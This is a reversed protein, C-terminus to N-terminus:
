PSLKWARSFFDSTVQHGQRLADIIPQMNGTLNVNLQFKQGDLVEPNNGLIELRLLAEGDRDLNGTLSLTEYRFNKLAQMLLDVYEGGSKMAQEATASSFRLTGPATSELRADTVTVVKGDREVPIRGSLEGDGSLGDIDLAEFLTTLDLSDILLQAETRESLPDILTDRVAIRSGALSFAADEVYVQGPTGHPLRFRVEVDELDVGVDITEATLRQGQPSGVPDLSDLDLRLDLGKVSADKSKFGLGALLLRVTGAFGNRDWTLAATGEASGRADSVAALQPSLESPQLGGTAFLLPILDVDATGRGSDLDHRASVQVLPRGGAGSTEANVVVRGGDRRAEGVVALPAFAAPTALHELAAVSFSGSMAAPDAPLELSVSVGDLALKKEPLVVTGDRLSVAAEYAGSEKLGGAISVAPAQLRIKLPAGDGTSLLLESEPLSIRTDHTLGHASEGSALTIEAETEPISVNLPAAAAIGGPLRLGAFSASGPASLSVTLRTGERGLALPLDLDARESVVEGARLKLLRAQVRADSRFADPLGEFDGAIDLKAVTWGALAVDTATVTLDPLTVRTLNPAEGLSAEVLGKLTASAPGASVDLTGDFRAGPSPSGPRWLLETPRDSDAPLSLALTGGSLRALDAALDPGLGLAGFDATSLDTATIRTTGRPALSLEEEAWAGTLDTVTSFTAAQGPLSLADLDATIDGTLDGQKLWALLSDRNGQLDPLAPWRGKAEVAIRGKGGTPFAAPFLSPGLSWLPAAETVEANLGFTGKPQGALDTLKADLTLDLSGDDSGLRATLDAAEHNLDFRFGAEHFPTGALSLGGLTLDGRGQRPLGSDLTLALDGKIANVRLEGGPLAVTGGSLALRAETEAEPDGSATLRGSLEGFGSTMAVDLDLDLDRTRGDSGERDLRGALEVSAPGFPTLAEIHGNSLRMNPIPYGADKTGGGSASVSGSGKGTGSKEGKRLRDILPQLSGFPAEGERLDLRLSLGDVDIRAVRGEALDFPQYRVELSAVSFEGNDGAAIDVVRLYDSDIVEITARGGPVGQNALERDLLAQALSLRWVTAAGVLIVLLALLLLGVLFLRRAM